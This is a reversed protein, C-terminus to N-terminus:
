QLTYYDVIYLLKIFLFSLLRTVNNNVHITLQFKTASITTFHFVLAIVCLIQFSWHFIWNTQKESRNVIRCDDTLFIKLRSFYFYFKNLAKYGTISFRLSNLRIHTRTRTHTRTHTHTM